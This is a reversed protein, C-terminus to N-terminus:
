VTAPLRDAAAWLDLEGPVTQTLLNRSAALSALGVRRYGSGMASSSTDTLSLRTIGNQKVIFQRDDVDTGLLLSWQDGASTTSDVTDWPSAFTGGVTKGIALDNNGIRAWVFTTGADDCRGILYTYADGGLSPDQVPEAMVVFVVQYDTALATDHRDVHRRWLSGSKKWVARGSGNPGFQGGGPGDSLTRTFGALTNASPENFQANISIGGPVNSALAGGTLATVQSNAFTATGQAAQAAQLSAVADDIRQQGWEALFDFPKWGLIQIGGFAIAVKGIFVDIFFQGYTKLQQMSFPPQAPQLEGPITRFTDQPTVAWDPAVETM